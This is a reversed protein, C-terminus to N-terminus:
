RPADSESGGGQMRQLEHDASLTPELLMVLYHDQSMARLKGIERLAGRPNKAMLVLAAQARVLKPNSALAKRMIEAGREPKRFRELQEMGRLYELASALREPMTESEAAKMSADFDTWEGRLRHLEATLLHTRVDNPAEKRLGRIVESGRALHTPGITGLAESIRDGDEVVRILQALMRGRDTTPEGSVSALSARAIRLDGSVWAAQMSLVQSAVLQSEGLLLELYAELFRGELTGLSRAFAAAAPFLYVTDRATIARVDEVSRPHRLAEDEPSLRIHDALEELTKEAEKARAAADGQFTMCPPQAPPAPPACGVVALALALGAQGLGRRLSLPRVSM